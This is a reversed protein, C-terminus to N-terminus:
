IGKSHGPEGEEAGCRELNMKITKIAPYYDDIFVVIKAGRSLM